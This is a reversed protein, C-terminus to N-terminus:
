VDLLLREPNEVNDRIRVLCGVAERGDVIRHDYSLALFMMPRVVIRDEADVVARKRISHMGLIGSQPPNLIPTSMLSGYVGGNSITFTGGSLDEPKLQGQRAKQGLLAVQQEIAAMGLTEAHRLVPVVLGQETGVAVGMHCSQHYVMDDGDIMANVAPFAKLADVAAKVFFSMMGLRVGHKKEFVERYKERLAMVASMDVENFTTLIAATNQAEKLREAIRKRLRSLPVRTMGAEPTAPPVPVSSASARPAEEPEAQPEVKRVAAGAAMVDDVTIRGERGTGSLVAPDIGQDAVLKRVAPSLPLDGQAPTPAVSEGATSVPQPGSVAVGGAEFPQMQLRGLLGGVAVKEGTGALIEGLYGSVPANVEMTVKDTELEVVPEDSIVYDGKQKLWRAVIAETVSEGMSPVVIEGTNM